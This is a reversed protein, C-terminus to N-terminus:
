LVEGLFHVLTIVYMIAGLAFATLHGPFKCVQKM